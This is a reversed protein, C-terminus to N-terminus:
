FLIDLDLSVSTYGDQEDPLLFKLFKFYDANVGARFHQKGVKFDVGGGAYLGFPMFAYYNILGGRVYPSVRKEPHFVYSPGVNLVLYMKDKFDSDSKSWKWMSFLLMTQLSFGPRVRKFEFDCGLGVRPIVYNKTEENEMQHRALMYGAQIRFHPTSTSSKRANYQFEVCDGDEQCFENNYDRTITLLKNASITGVQLQKLAKDSKKLMHMAPLLAQERKIAADAPTYASLDGPDKVLAVKGSQDVLYYQANTWTDEYRYLSVGGQLLYEAFITQEEGDVPFTRTVFFIGDDMLRFGAIQGPQYTVYSMEGDPQFHCARAMKGRTQYDITGSITDGSNTIIYGKVPNQKSWVAITGCLVMMLLLLFKKM